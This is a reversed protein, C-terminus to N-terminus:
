KHYLRKSEYVPECTLRIGLKKVTHVDTESLIVSSHMECCRLEGLKDLAKAAIPDTVACISLAILIENLHLRPNNSGLANVKLNTIPELIEPSILDIRDDIGAMVKLANLLAASAAG